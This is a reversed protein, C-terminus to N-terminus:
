NRRDKARWLYSLILMWAILLISWQEQNTILKDKYKLHVGFTDYVSSWQVESLYSRKLDVVYLQRILSTLHTLPFLLLIHRLWSEYFSYPLYAGTLFGIVTGYLNAFTAFTTTNKLRDTFCLLIGSNMFSSFVLLGTVKGITEMSLIHHYHFKFYVESILMTFCTFGSSVLTSSIWYAVLISFEPIPAALYDKYIGMETDKVRIQIMGFCTTTSMVIFLGSMMLRDTLEHVIVTNIGQGMVLQILFDRLFIFYLCLVIAMSSISLLLNTKNELFIAINRGVLFRIARVRIRWM